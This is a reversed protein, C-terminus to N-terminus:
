GTYARNVLLKDSQLDVFKTTPLQRRVEKYKLGTGIRVLRTHAPTIKWGSDSAAATLAASEMEAIDRLERLDLEFAPPSAVPETELPDGTSGFIAGPIADLSVAAGVPSDEASLRNGSSYPYMVPITIRGSAAKSFQSVATCGTLGILIAAVAGTKSWKCGFVRGSSTGM